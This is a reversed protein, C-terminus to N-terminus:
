KQSARRQIPQLAISFNPHDYRFRHLFRNLSDDSVMLFAAGQPERLSRSKKILAGGLRYVQEQQYALIVAVGLLISRQNM